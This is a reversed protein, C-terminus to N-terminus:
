RYIENAGELSSVLDKIQEAHEKSCVLLVGDKEAIIVNRLGVVATLARETIVVSDRVDKLVHNGLSINGREDQSLISSLRVLSGIDDWRFDAELVSINKEKELIGRDFSVSELEDYIEAVSRSSSEFSSILGPFHKQYVERIKDLSFIFMGTNWLYNGESLYKRAKKRDPKERFRKVRYAKEDKNGLRHGCEAYGYCEAPYKPKVGMLVIDNRDAALEAGRFVCRVFRDIEGVYHDAPLVAVIGDKEEAYIISCAYAIAAATNKRSPEAILRYDIGERQELVSIVTDAQDAGCVIYPVSNVAIMRSRELTQQLFSSEGNLSLFQKSCSERSLPWLRSGVGGAIILPIIKGKM